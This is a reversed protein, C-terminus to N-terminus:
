VHKRKKSPAKKSKLSKLSHQLEARMMNQLKKPELIEVGDGWEFLQWCMELLGGARFRV